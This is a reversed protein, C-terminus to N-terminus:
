AARREKRKEGLPPVLIDFLIRALADTEADARRLESDSLRRGEEGLARRVEDLPLIM